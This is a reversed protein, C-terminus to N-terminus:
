QSSSPLLHSVEELCLEPGQFISATNDMKTTLTLTLSSTGSPDQCVGETLTIVMIIAIIM